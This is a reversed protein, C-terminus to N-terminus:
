QVPDEESDDEDKEKIQTLGFRRSLSEFSFPDNELMGADILESQAANNTVARAITRFREITIPRPAVLHSVAIAKSAPLAVVTSTPSEELTTPPTLPDIGTAADFVANRFEEVNLRPDVFAALRGKGISERGVLLNRLVGPRTIASTDTNMAIVMDIAPELTGSAIIASNLEDIQSQLLEYAEISKYDSVVQDRTVDEVTDAPGQERVALIIAFYRNGLQDEAAPDVLPLGIQVDLGTTNAEELEFFAPLGYAPLQRSGIRYASGGIGPLSSIANANLWRDGVMTVSPLPITVQFQEKIRDVVTQAIDELKPRRSEWDEPLTLIGNTSPFGNTASVVKARIARDAEVMMDTANKERFQAELKPRELAFDGPFQDRSTRWLKNLEVRDVPVANMFTNKDLTLWGMQVRTPQTYGIQFDNDSPSQAKYIDFFTQIEEDTPDPITSSVMTSDLVAANVAIADWSEHAAKIAGLDSFSALKPVSGLLRYVGRAQALIKYVDEMTGGANGASLTANRSMIQIIQDKLSALREQEELPSLQLGRQKETFVQIYAEATALEGIWAAGDGSEGVLGANEAQQVLLLWHLAVTSESETNLGMGGASRPGLARPNVRKLLSIAVNANQVDGRTFKTGDELTAVKAKLPSPSLRTLVPQLLFVVMLLSGGIALIILQYKRILKLM